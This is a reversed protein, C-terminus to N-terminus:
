GAKRQRKQVDQQAYFNECRELEARDSVMLRKYDDKSMNALQERSYKLRNTPKPPQGSIDRRTVGTSFRTPAKPQPPLAPANREAPALETPEDDDIPAESLKLLNEATLEEFARKYSVVQRPDLGMTRMYQTLVRKNHENEPDWEPTESIFETAAAVADRQFQEAQERQRREREGDVPGIVSEMVKTVARDVQAPDQLQAVVELRDANTLPKPANSQTPPAPTHPHQAGQRRLEALRRNANQQSDALMNTIEDKSGKYVSPSSTDKPDDPTITLEWRDNPLERWKKGV